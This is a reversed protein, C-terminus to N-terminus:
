YCRRNVYRRLRTALQKGYHLEVFKLDVERASLHPNARAIARRSLSIAAATLSCTCAFREAVSAKRLLEIQIKEAEPATDSLM